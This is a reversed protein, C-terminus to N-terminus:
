YHAQLQQAYAEKATIIGQMLDLIWDGHREAESISLALAFRLMEQTPTMRDTYLFVKYGIIGKEQNMYFSGIRQDYNVLILYKSLEDAAWTEQKQQVTYDAQIEVGHEYAAIWVTIQQMKVGNLDFRADFCDASEHFHYLVNNQDLMAKIAQLNVAIRAADEGQAACGVCLFSFLLIFLLSIKCHNIM